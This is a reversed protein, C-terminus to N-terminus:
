PSIADIVVSGLIQNARTALEGTLAASGVVVYLCFARNRHTFFLQKGAQGPILRQLQKPDLSSPDIESPFREVEAFLNSNIADGGFEVLSVFVDAAGLVEVVGGGYDARNSPLPVTAAHVVTM